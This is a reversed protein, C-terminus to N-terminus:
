WGFEQPREAEAVMQTLVLVTVLGGLGSAFQERDLSARLAARILSAPKVGTDLADRFVRLFTLAPGHMKFGSRHLLM